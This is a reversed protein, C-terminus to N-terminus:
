KIKMMYIWQLIKEKKFAAYFSAEDEYYLTTFEDNSKEMFFDEVEYDNWWDDPLDNDETYDDILDYIRGALENPLGMRKGIFDWGKEIEWHELNRKIYEVCASFHEQTTM